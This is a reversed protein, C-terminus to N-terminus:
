FNGRKAEWSREEREELTKKIDKNVKHSFAYLVLTLIIAVFIFTLQLIMYFTFINVFLGSLLSLALTVVMYLALISATGSTLLTENHQPKKYTILPVGFFFMIQSIVLFVLGMWHAIYRNNTIMFFLIITLLIVLCGVIKMITSDLNKSNFM